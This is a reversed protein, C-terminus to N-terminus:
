SELNPSGPGSRGFTRSGRWFKFGALLIVFAAVLSSLVLLGTEVTGGLWPVAAPEPARPVAPPDSTPESAAQARPPADAQVYRGPLEFPIAVVAPDPDTGPRRLLIELSWPELMHFGSSAPVTFLGIERFDPAGSSPALRELRLHADSHLRLVHGGQNLRIRDFEGTRVFATGKFSYLGNGAILISADGPNLAAMAQTYLRDGLLNRGIRPPNVLAVAVDLLVTPAQTGGTGAAPPSEDVVQRTAVSGDRVLARWDAAEFFDPDLTGSAPEELIGRSRAVLRASRLIADNIVLSSVTAGSIADVSQEQVPRRLDLGRHAEIFRHLVSESVGAALIPEHHELLALGTVIGRLDLGILVDVPKGTYGVAAIVDKTHFVYGAIQGARRVAAAPPRGQVPGIEQAGPFVRRWGDAGADEAAPTAGPWLGLVLCLAALVSAAGCCPRGM